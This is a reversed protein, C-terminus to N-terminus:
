DGSGGDVVTGYYGRVSHSGNVAATDTVHESHAFYGLDPDNDQVVPAINDQNPNRDRAEARMDKNSDQHDVFAADLSGAVVVASLGAIAIVTLPDAKASPATHLTLLLAGCAGAINRFIYKM